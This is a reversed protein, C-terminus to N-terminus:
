RNLLSREYRAFFADFVRSLERKDRISEYITSGPQGEGSVVRLLVLEPNRALRREPLPFLAVYNRGDLHFFDLIDMYYEVGTDVDELVALTEEESDRALRAAAQRKWEASQQKAQKNERRGFM